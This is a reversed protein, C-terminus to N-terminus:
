NGILILGSWWFPSETEKIFALKVARLAEAYTMPQTKDLIKEFFLPMMKSALKDQLPFLSCVINSAGAYLFGRNLAIMGEGKFVKGLGTVCASLIVLDANLVLNFAEGIYFRSNDAMRRAQREEPLLLLDEEESLIDPIDQQSLYLGAGKANEDNRFGHTAIVVYKYKGAHKTLNAKTAHDYLFTNSDLGKDQFLNHIRQIEAESDPLNAQQTLNQGRSNETQRFGDYLNTSRAETATSVTAKDSTDSAQKPSTTNDVVSAFHVPALGMFREELVATERQKQATYLWLTASYHYSITYQQLLYPLNAYPTDLAVEQYLLAEFPMKQLEGDPIIMLDTVGELFPAVPAILWQYLQRAPPIFDETARHMQATFDDAVDEFNDPKDMQIVQYDTATICFIFLHKEDIFYEILATNRGGAGELPPLIDTEGKPPPNLPLVSQALHAQVKEVTVVEMEYKLRYYDPYKNELQEILADYDQKHDFHQSQWESIDKELEVKKQELQAIKESDPIIEDQEEKLQKKTTTVEGEGQLIRKDLYTLEIRLDYEKQKLDASINAAVQAEANKLQSFLLISKSQEAYSFALKYTGDITYPINKFEEHQPIEPLTKYLKVLELAVKIAEEYVSHSKEALTLKSGDAKYSQRIHIILEAAVQSTSLAAQLDKPSQTQHLYLLHFTKAKRQLIGFFHYSDQCEVGTPNKYVFVDTFFPMLVILAKQLYNIAKNYKKNNIYVDGLLMLSYAIISHKKGLKKKSIVISKEICQIAKNFSGKSNYSNGLNLLLNGINPHKKQFCKNYIKMAKQFYSIAKDHKKKSHFCLGLNSLSMALYPHKKRLKKKDNKYVKLFFIAKDYNGKSHYSLGLNNYVNGLDNYEKFTKKYLIISKKFYNIAKNYDGKKEYCIGLNNLSYATQIPESNLLKERIKLAKQHYCISKDYNGKFHYSLGLNNMSNGIMTHEPDLHKYKINLSKECYEIAKNYNGKSNYCLGIGNLVQGLVIHNSDLYNEGIKLTQKLHRLENDYKGLCDYNWGIWNNVRVWREWEEWKEFVVSAKELLEIAAEYKAEKESLIKAEEFWADAQALEQEKVDKM